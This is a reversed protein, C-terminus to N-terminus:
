TYVDYFLNDFFPETGKKEKKQMEAKFSICFLKTKM